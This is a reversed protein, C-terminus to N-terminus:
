LAVHLFLCSSFPGAMQYLNYLYDPGESYQAVVQFVVHDDKRRKLVLNINWDKAARELHCHRIVKTRVDIPARQV